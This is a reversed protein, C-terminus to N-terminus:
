LKALNSLQKSVFRTPVFPLNQKSLLILIIYEAVDALKPLEPLSLFRAMHM